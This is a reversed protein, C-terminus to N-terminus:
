TLCQNSSARLSVDEMDGYFEQEDHDEYEVGDSLDAPIAETPEDIVLTTSIATGDMDVLAEMTVDREEINLFELSGLDEEDDDYASYGWIHEEYYDERNDIVSGSLHCLITATGLRFGVEKCVQHLLSVKLDDTGKLAGGRINTRSPRRNLLYVIKKPVFTGSMAKWSLLVRKVEGTFLSNSSIAPPLSNATHILNFSIALQYGSKIPKIEHVVNNYWGMVTTAELSAQSSDYNVSVGNHSLHAEGGTHESPLVVTITAFTGDAKETSLYLEVPAEHIYSSQSM